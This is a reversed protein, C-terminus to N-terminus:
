RPPQTTMCAIWDLAATMGRLPFTATSPGAVSRYTWTATRGRRLRAVIDDTVAQSTVRYENTVNPANAIADTLVVTDRGFALSMPTAPEAPTPSVAVFEVQWPAGALAQAVRLQHLYAAGDKDRIAVVASCYGDRRCAGLVDKFYARTEGYRHHLTAGCRTEASAAGTAMATLAVAAALFRGIM